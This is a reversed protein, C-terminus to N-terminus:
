VFLCSKICFARVKAVVAARAQEALAPRPDDWSTEGSDVHFYYVEGEADKAERWVRTAAAVAAAVAAEDVVVPSPVSTPTASVSGADPGSSSLSVSDAADSAGRGRAGARRQLISAKPTGNKAAAAAAAAAAEAEAAAVAAAASARVKAAAASLASSAKAATPSLASLRRPLSAPRNRTAAEDDDDGAGSGKRILSRDDEADDDDTVLAVGGRVPARAASM